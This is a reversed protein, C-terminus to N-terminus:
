SNPSGNSQSPVLFPRPFSVVLFFYLGALPAVYVACGRSGLVFCASNEDSWARYEWVSVHAVVGIVVGQLGLLVPRRVM